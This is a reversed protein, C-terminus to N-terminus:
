NWNAIRCGVVHFLFGNDQLALNMCVFPSSVVFFFVYLGIENLEIRLIRIGASDERRATKLEGRSIPSIEMRGNMQQM